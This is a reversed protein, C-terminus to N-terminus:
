MKPLYKTPNVPTGKKRIEFHLHPGTSYGTSGELGITQGKLIKSGVTAYIRSLHAYVTSMGRGHDIVVAKGYGDWWGAFIIEGSDAALIPAGYRDAIDIGTHRGQIRHRVGYRLTIRGKLPWIYTGTSHVAAGTREATKKQILVELERSSQELERVKKEYGKEREQLESALTKKEELQQAIKEKEGAVVVVLTKIEKTRDQLISRKAKSASLYSKTKNILAADSEIVRQFFYFRNLFDSMSRSGLFLDLYNIRGNVYAERVRKRLLDASKNIETEAKRLEVSLVGIEMENTQIKEKAMSIKRNASKLQRTVVVLKGLAAQRQERTQKLKEKNEELAQRITELKAQEDAPVPEEAIAQCALGTIFLIIIIRVLLKM